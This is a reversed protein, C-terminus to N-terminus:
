FDEDMVADTYEGFEDDTMEKINFEKAEIGGWLELLRRCEAENYTTYGKIAMELREGYRRKHIAVLRISDEPTLGSLHTRSIEERVLQNIRKGEDM